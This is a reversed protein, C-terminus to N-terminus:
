NGRTESGPPDEERESEQQGAPPGVQGASIAGISPGVASLTPSGPDYGLMEGLLQRRNGKSGARRLASIIKTSINVRQTARALRNGMAFVAVGRDFNFRNPDPAQKQTVSASDRLAQFNNLQEETFLEKMLTPNNKFAKDYNKVFQRFNPERQLLPDMINLAAENQLAAMKGSDEGVIKKLRGVVAGAEAKFGTQGMGFVLRRVEEPSLEQTAIKRVVVDDKFRKKFEASNAIAEKWKKLAAESGSVMDAM